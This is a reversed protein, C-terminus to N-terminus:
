KNNEEWIQEAYTLMSDFCAQMEAVLQFQTRTRVLNHEPYATKFYVDGQLYDTLFRVGTELTIILAGYALSRAEERTLFKALAAIFGRAFAQYHSMSFHVKSLDREDEEATAAGSRIADGFDFAALGPMVTDLDVVCLPEHTEADFLINNIKTDNHTVRLPLKGDALASMLFGAREEFEWAFTLEKAASGDAVRGVKDDAVAQHLAEYRAPTDHFHPITEVLDDAKFNALQAQFDGFARGAQEFQRLDDVLEFSLTNAIFKYVRWVAGDEATFYPAGSVTPMLTLTRREPDAAAALCNEKLLPLIKAINDMIDKAKPFVFPNIRQLIYSDRTCAVFYTDNIHGNGYNPQFDRVTDDVAFEQWIRWAAADKASLNEPLKFNTFETM